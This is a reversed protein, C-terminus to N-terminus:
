FYFTTSLSFIGFVIFTQGLADRGTGWDGTWSSYQSLLYSVLSGVTEWFIKRKGIIIPVDWCNM